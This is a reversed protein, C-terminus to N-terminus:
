NRHQDHEAVLDVRDHVLDSRALKRTVICQLPGYVITPVALVVLWLPGFEFLAQTLLSTLVILAIVPRLVGRRLITRYTTAIQTRLPEPEESRHLRPERIALVALASGIVFPM